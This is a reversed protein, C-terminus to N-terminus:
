YTSSFLRKSPQLEDVSVLDLVLVAEEMCDAYTDRLKDVVNTTLSELLSPKQVSVTAKVYAKSPTRNINQTSKDDSM